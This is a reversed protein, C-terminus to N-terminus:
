NFVIGSFFWLLAWRSCTATTLMSGNRIAAIKWKRCRALIQKLPFSM